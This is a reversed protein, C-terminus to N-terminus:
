SAALPLRSLALPPGAPPVVLASIEPRAEVYAPAREVPTVALATAHAEAAAARSAVFPGAAPRPPRRELQEFSRDYGAAVLAPLITPDFRGGTSERAGLAAALGDLLRRGVRVWEGAAANLRSLDSAPDFRTLARECAA